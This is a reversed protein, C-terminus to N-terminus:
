PQARFIAELSPLLLSQPYRRKFNAFLQAAEAMQRDALVAQIRLGDREEALRGKPYRKQHEDLAVLADANAARVLASKATELLARERALDTDSTDVTSPLAASKTPLSPVGHLQPIQIVVTPLTAAPEEVPVLVSRVRYPAMKNLWAISAGGLLTGVAVGILAGKVLPRVRVPSRAEPFGAPDHQVISHNIREQLRAQRDSELPVIEAETDLFRRSDPHQYDPPEIM